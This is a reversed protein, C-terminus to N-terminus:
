EFAPGTPKGGIFLQRRKVERVQVDGNDIAAREHELMARERAGDIPGIVRPPFLNALTDSVDRWDKGDLRLVHPDIACHVGPRTQAERGVIRAACGDMLVAAETEGPKWYVLCDGAGSCIEPATAAARLAPPLAVGAPITKLIPTTSPAEPGAFPDGDYRSRMALTRGATMRVAPQRSQQLQRLVPIGEPGFDFRMATWDFMEPTVRGSELRAMQNRAALGGFSVFPLALFLGVLFVGLALGINARRIGEAWHRRRLLIAALFALGCTLAVAVFTIAWLRDPTLGYQGVRKGTSIAAVIGLPLIVLALPLATWRLIRGQGAEEEGSPGITASVLVFASLVCVLLIPTTQKTTWLPALGTFPLALVFLVLGCALVPTLVSLIAAAIRQLMLLMPARERLLGIGAGLATGILTWEFWSHNFLDKLQHLGILAFLQGLLTTLLFVLLVFAWGAAWLIAHTWSYAHLAQYDLRLRRRAGDPVPSPRDGGRRPRLFAAM